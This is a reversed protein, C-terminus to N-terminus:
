CRCGCCDTQPGSSMRRCQWSRAPRKGRWSSRWGSRVAMGGVILTASLPRPLTEPITITLPLDLADIVPQPQGSTADLTVWASPPEVSATIRLLRHGVNAVRVTRTTVGGGPTVRVVLRPPHVDLEPRAPLTAPLRALWHDLRADPDDEPTAGPLLDDRGISRLWTDLRGSILEDRIAVWKQASVRLFDDWSRCATGDPLRFSFQTDSPKAVSGAVVRLQVPGLQITDGVALPRSQGPLIRQRNVFTGGPQRPRPHCLGLPTAAIVAQRAAM